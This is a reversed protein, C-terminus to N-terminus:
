RLRKLEALGTLGSVVIADPTLQVLEAAFVKERGIAGVGALHPRRIPIVVVIKPEATAWGSRASVVKEPADAMELFGIVNWPRYLATVGDILGRSLLRLHPIIKEM